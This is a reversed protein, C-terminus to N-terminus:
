AKTSAPAFGQLFAAAFLKDIFVPADPKAPVPEILASFAASVSGRSGAPHRTEAGEPLSGARLFYHAERRPCDTWRKKRTERQIAEAQREPRACIASRPSAHHLAINNSVVSLGPGKGLGFAEKLLRGKWERKCDARWKDYRDRLERTALEL